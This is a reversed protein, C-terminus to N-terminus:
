KSHRFPSACPRSLASRAIITAITALAVMPYVGWHPVESFFPNAALKPDRLLQAAQGAYNLLLAPLVIVSWAVRVPRRGFHGMDAYLAEGGTLALFVGGLVVFSGWGHAALFRLGLLPNFAAVVGPSRGIAVLGIAGIVAFWVLMVPGFLRGLRATGFPQVAFLTVLIAVALPLVYPKFVTTAVNLGELASLVSIAPTIIGDGYILAAGILGAAILLRGRSLM